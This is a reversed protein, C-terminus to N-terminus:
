TARHRRAKVGATFTAPSARTPPWSPSRVDTGDALHVAPLWHNDTEIDQLTPNYLIMGAAGGQKVNFGKEVRGHAGRQCAVIKGAFIGAPAPTTARAPQQVAPGRRARGPTAAGVGRTISAGTSSATDGDGATLTSRRSRVRADPDVGRRHHGVAGLHDATAAGPGDNGASAAVFVGAAYADLFALEVPDTFPDSGGSISFNIVDVGDLIAQGVAAASDSRLLGAAGCVKYM